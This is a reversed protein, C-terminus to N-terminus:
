AVAQLEKLSQLTSEVLRSQRKQRKLARVLERSKDLAIRLSDRVLVAQDLTSRTAVSRRPPSNAVGEQRKVDVRRRGSAAKTEAPMSSPSACATTSDTLSDTTAKPMSRLRKSVPNSTAGNSRLPSSIRTLPETPPVDATTALPM